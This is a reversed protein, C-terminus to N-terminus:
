ALQKGSAVYSVPCRRIWLGGLVIVTMTGKHLGEDINLYSAEQCVTHLKQKRLNLKDEYLEQNNSSRVRIWSPKRLVEGPNQPTIKIPNRATKAAGKQRIETTM